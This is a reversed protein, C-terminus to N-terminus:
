LPEKWGRPAKDAVYCFRCWFGTKPKSTIPRNRVCGFCIWPNPCKAGRCDLMNSTRKSAHCRSCTRMDHEMDGDSESAGDSVELDITPVARTVIATGKKVKSKTHRPPAQNTKTTLKDENDGDRGRKKSSMSGHEEKVVANPSSGSGITRGDTRKLRALAAKDTVKRLKEYIEHLCSAQLSQNHASIADQLMARNKEDVTDRAVTASGVMGDDGSTVLHDRQFNKHLPIFTEYYKIKVGRIARKQVVPSLQQHRINTDQLKYDQKAENYRRKLEVLADEFKGVTSDQASQVVKTEESVQFQPDPLSNETSSSGTSSPQSTHVPPPNETSNSAEDSTPHSNSPDLQATSGRMSSTPNSTQSMAGHVVAERGDEKDSEAGTHQIDDAVTPASTTNKDLEVESALSGSTQLSSDTIGQAKSPRTLLVVLEGDFYFKANGTECLARLKTHEFCIHITLKIANKLVLRLKRDLQKHHLKESRSKNGQGDTSDVLICSNAKVGLQRSTENSFLRVASELDKRGLRRREAGPIPTVRKGQTVSASIRIDIRTQSAM